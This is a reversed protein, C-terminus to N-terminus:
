LKMPASGYLTTLVPGALGVALYVGQDEDFLLQAPVGQRRYSPQGAEVAAGDAENGVVDHAVVLRHRRGFAVGQAQRFRHEEENVGQKHEVVHAVLYLHDAVDVGVAPADLLRVRVGHAADLPQNLTQVPGEQHLAAGRGAPALGPRGVGGVHGLLPVLRHHLLDLLVDVGSVDDLRHGGLTQGPGCRRRGQVDVPRQAGQVGRGIHVVQRQLIKGYDARRRLQQHANIVPQDVVEGQCACPRAPGCGFVVFGQGRLQLRVFLLAGFVDHQHVQAAVVDPADGFRARNFNGVEHSDHAVGM